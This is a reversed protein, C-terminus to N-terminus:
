YLYGEASPVSLVIPMGVVGEESISPKGERASMQPNSVSSSMSFSSSSVWLKSLSRVLSDSSAVLPSSEFTLRFRNIVQNNKIVFKNHKLPSM